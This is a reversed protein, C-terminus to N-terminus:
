VPQVLGDDNELLLAPEDGVTYSYDELIDLVELMLLQHQTNAELFKGLKEIQEQISAAVLNEGNKRRFRKLAVKLDERKSTAQQQTTRDTLLVGDVERVMMQRLDQNVLDWARQLASNALEPIIREAGQRMTMMKETTGTTDYQLRREPDSLVDYANQIRKFAVPDGQRDPHHLMALKRYAAKIEAATAEPTLGLAEYPTM